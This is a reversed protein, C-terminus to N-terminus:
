RPRRKAIFSWLCVLWYAPWLLALGGAMLRDGTFVRSQLDIWTVVIGAAYALALGIWM